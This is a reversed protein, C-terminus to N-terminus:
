FFCIVWLVMNNRARVSAGDYFNFFLDLLRRCCRRNVLMLRALCQVAQEQLRPSVQLQGGKDGASLLHLLFPLSRGIITCRSFLDRDVLKEIKHQLKEEESIAPFHFYLL